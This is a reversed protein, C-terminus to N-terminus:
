GLWAGSNAFRYVTGGINVTGTAMAGSSYMYYWTTGLRVWGTAMAGSPQLYYWTSGLRLWGTAMAGSPQLYYWTGGILEWGTQMRGYADMYYWTNGVLEWGTQMRGYTDFYYWDSDILEWGTQMRGYADFYYWGGDVLKWGTQMAGNNDFYYWGDLYKWGIVFEGDEYYLWKGGELAWGDTFDNEVVVVITYEGAGGATLDLVGEVATYTTGDKKTATVTYDGEAVAYVGVTDTFSLLEKDDSTNTLIWKISADINALEGSTANIEVDSSNIVQLASGEAFVYRPQSDVPTPEKGYVANAFTVEAANKINFNVPKAYTAKKAVSNQYFSTGFSFHPAGEANDYTVTISHNFMREDNSDGFIFGEVTGKAVACNIEINQPVETMNYDNIRGVVVGETINNIEVKEDFKVSFSNLRMQRGSLIEIKINSFETAGGLIIHCGPIATISAKEDESASAIKLTFAHDPLVDSDAAWLVAETGVVKVEAIDGAVLGDALAANVAEKITAYLTEGEPATGNGAYYTETMAGVVVRVSYEGAGGATLDLVGDVPSYVTGTEDGNKTAFVRYEGDAVAYVGVTDTFSLVDKYESTNTIIWKM